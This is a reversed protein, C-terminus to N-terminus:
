EEVTLRMTKKDIVVTGTEVTKEIWHPYPQAMMPRTASQLILTKTAPLDPLEAKELTVGGPPLVLYCYLRGRQVALTDRLADVLDPLTQGIFRYPVTKLLFQEYDRSGCVTLEYKGPDLDRPVELEIQYKKKEARVSEVVVDIDIKEGPRVESDSLDASWIHSTIDQPIIRIEFDMSEVTVSGYPNNMLLAISGAAETLM